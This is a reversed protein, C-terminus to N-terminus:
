AYVKLMTDWSGLCLASGDTSLGLCSVRNDACTNYNHVVVANRKDEADSVNTTDWAKITFDDYGSFLCSGSKSFALSTIGCLIKDTQYSLLQNYARIDWLRCSSDDSGTAFAHGNPFFAVANIDSEHGRHTQVSGEQRIDWLKGSTDCSGSVFLNKDDPSISVAMVDGQHDRFTQKPTQKEIDWLVCTSDGSSTIVNAKDVFRTCSLYGDHGSLEFSARTPSQDQDLKYISCMNDLGGCAVMSNQDQEFACTMVWSSRLPIAHIKNTTFADWCILKGDQSASVLNTCAPGKADPTPNPGAWHMAYVKGFHGRLQRRQKLVDWSSSASEGEPFTKGEKAEVHKKIKERLEELQEKDSM